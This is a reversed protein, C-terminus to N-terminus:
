NFYGDLKLVSRIKVLYLLIIKSMCIDYLLFVINAVLFVFFKVNFFSIEESIFIKLFLLSIFLCLNFVSFKLVWAIAPHRREFVAKLMPYFGSFSLFIFAPLKNPLLLLSSVSAVAYVLMPFYGGIEIVAIVVVFGAVAACSLDLVEIFSGLLLIIFAVAALIASLTIKKIGKKNAKNKNM